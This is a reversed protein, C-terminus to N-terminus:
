FVYKLDSLNDIVKWAVDEVESGKFAVGHKTNVFMQRDNNGDGVCACQTININLKRCFSQLHRLKVIADDGLSVINDLYDNGDFIFINNSEYFEIGLEGAIKEVLIDFSGSILGIKYGKNQLYRIIERSGRNYTYNLITSTITKMTAKGRKKYIRELIEQGENYSIIGEEYFDLLVQDEKRTMGMALNLNLWSNEKILTENLDFCILKIDNM